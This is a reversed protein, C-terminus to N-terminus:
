IKKIVFQSDILDLKGVPYKGIFEDVAQKVPQRGKLEPSTWFYDDGTIYGGKKVKPFYLELDKRIFDYYHNGDIYIWDFYDDPFDKVVIHSFNRHINVNKLDNFKNEVGLFIKNMDKQNKAKAGGYWRKGYKVQFKWPDILHLRKPTIIEIILKSFDGEWVGIEACISRKPMLELLRKRKDRIFFIKTSISLIRAVRKLIM